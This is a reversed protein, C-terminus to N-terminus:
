SSSDLKRQSERKEKEEFSKYGNMYGEIRSIRENGNGVERSIMMHAEDNKEDLKLVFAKLDKLAQWIRGGLFIGGACAPLLTAILIINQTEM